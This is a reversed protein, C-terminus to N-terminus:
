GRGAMLILHVSVVKKSPFEMIKRPNLQELRLRRDDMSLFRKVYALPPSGEVDAIQAVVFDGKRVPLGPHVYAVEGAFYRNEMSDGAIYVAYADPVNVLSTPALIDAVKNGNLVFEGHKGGMAQGYVPIKHFLPTTGGLTSNDRSSTSSSHEVGSPPPKNGTRLEIESMGIASALDRMMTGRPNDVRSKVYKGLSEILSADGPRGMEAALRPLSWGLDELRNRLRTGWHMASLSVASLIEPVSNSLAQM